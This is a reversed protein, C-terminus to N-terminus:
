GQGMLEKYSGSEVVRGEQLVYIRDANMITSLRHAIVVRTAQLNDLSQSVITQTVNDLASTAEDFFLIRPRNVIARAILLRQRQGGSITSGGESVLTHMGMPMQRIDNELGVLRSAEWADDITLNSTGVINSLITGSMVRSNQLVVGIQRRISQIDLGAVAQQDYAIVGSTPKEFGILLRLLTSKGSGSSGVLAVFEGPNIEMSVDNVILPSDPQYRFFVHNLEIKGQLPGPDMKSDDAEPLAQLIPQLREYSPVVSLTTTLAASLQLGALLLQGFAAHFALFSGTSLAVDSSLAFVAFLVLTAITPFAANFVSLRSSLMRAQYAQRRQESFADAWFAFTRSEAGAVRFKAIGQIAQLVLGSLQGELRALHRQRQVQFYGILISVLTGAAVLLLAVRALAPSYYFLLALSFLLLNGALLSTMATGAITKRITNIGMARLGLDGASYNRFFPTPLSLLRDWIAAQLSTDMKGELRLLAISHAVQFMAAAGAGALLALSIQLLQPWAAGPLIRDFIIGIAVPTILGLLGVATALLLVMSFDLLRGQLGFKLLDLASLPRHPLPRYFMHAFLSLTLAVAETVPVVEQTVPNHLQYRTASIPLLAVPHHNEEIYALLPGHDQKWWGEALAVRRMRVYSARTIAMLPDRLTRAQGWNNPTRIAIGLTKGVLRSAALLADEEREGLPRPRLRSELIAALQSVANELYWQQHNVKQRLWEQEVQKERASKVLLTELLLHHFKDLTSWPHAGELWTQTPIAVLQTVGQTQLWGHNSLPLYGDPQLVGVAEEGLFLTSGTEQRIWVVGRKPRVIQGAPLRIQHGAELLACDNDIRTQSVGRVLGGIWNDLLTALPPHYLPDAALEILRERKLRLLRTNNVGVALLGMVTGEEQIEMGFFADGGEATYLHRRHGVPEGDQVQVAFIHVRGSYVVWVSSAGSLLFPQNSGAEFFTAERYRLQLLFLEEVREKETSDIPEQEIM